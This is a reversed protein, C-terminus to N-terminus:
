VITKFDPRRRAAFAAMGEAFDAGAVAEALIGPYGAEAPGLGAGIAAVAKKTARITWPSCSTVIGAFEAIGTELDAEVIDVLGYTLALAAPISRGSFMLAKTRSPGIASVVRRVDGYPYAIGLKAPTIAYSSTASAVRFDCALALAVSAGVCLGDIAAIVPVDVAEVARMAAEMRDFYALATDRTAFVEEFEKIDAGAGFNGGRGRLIIARSKSAADAMISPLAAWAAHGLANRRAPGDLWVTAM